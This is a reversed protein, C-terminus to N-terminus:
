NFSNENDFYTITTIFEFSNKTVSVISIITNAFNTEIWKQIQLTMRWFDASEITKVRLM